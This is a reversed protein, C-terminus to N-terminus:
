YDEIREKPSQVIFVIKNNKAGKKESSVMNETNTVEKKRAETNKVGRKKLEVLFEKSYLPPDWPTQSASITELKRLRITARLATDSCTL